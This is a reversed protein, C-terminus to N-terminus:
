RSVRKSGTDASTRSRRSTSTETSEGRSGTCAGLSTARASCSRGPTSPTTISNWPM